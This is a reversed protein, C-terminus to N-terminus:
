PKGPSYDPHSQDKASIIVPQNPWKFEFFPDDFRMGREAEPRYIDSHWYHIATNDTLTLWANACGAPILLSYGNEASLQFGRWMGFTPSDIRIDAVIDFIEGTVCTLIKTENSEQWHFGRLTYAYPNESLNSQRVVFDIGADALAQFCFTRRFRGRNDRFFSPKILQVGTIETPEVLYSM